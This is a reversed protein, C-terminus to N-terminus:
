KTSDLEQRAKDLWQAMRELLGSWIERETAEAEPVLLELTYQGDGLPLVNLRAPEPPEARDLAIPILPIDNSETHSSEKINQFYIVSGFSRVHSPWDTCRKAIESLGVTEYDISNNLQSQLSEIIDHVGSGTTSPLTMRVPTINLCPGIVNEVDIDSSALTRGSVGRGFVIDDKGTTQALAIGWAATFITAVTLEKSSHSFHVIKRLVTRKGPKLVTEHDGIVSLPIPAGQLLERWHNFMSPSAPIRVFPSFDSVPPLSQDHYLASLCEAMRPLSIADYLAHSIGMVLRTEERNKSLLIFFTVFPSGPSIAKRLDDICVEECAQDMSIDLVRQIAVNPELSRLIVQIFEGDDGHPLFVARLIDLSSVLEKCVDGLKGAASEDNFSMAFYNWETRPKQFTCHVAYRQFETVPLIEAIMDESVGLNRAVDGVEPLPRMASGTANVHGNSTSLGKAASLAIKDAMQELVPYKFILSVSLPLGSARAAGVLRIATISDGGLELFSDQRGIFKTSISLVDSWLKRLSKEYETKPEEVPRKQKITDFHIRTGIERLKKRDIKGASSLPLQQLVRFAAPIM